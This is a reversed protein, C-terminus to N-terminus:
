GKASMELFRDIEEEGGTLSVFAEELTPEVPRVSRVRAGSNILLKVIEESIDGGRMCSVRLIPDEYTVKSVDDYAKIKDILGSQLNPTEVEIVSLESISRTLDSPRGIQILRGEYIIGVRDCIKEPEEMIHTTWVVTVGQDCLKRTFERLAIATQPDLGSTVEDLFLVKPNHILAAVIMSKKFWGSSLGKVQRTAKDNFKFLEFLERIRDEAKVKPLGYLKALLRLNEEVTLDKYLLVGDSVVGINRRVKAPETAVDYGAVKAQGRTPEILTCLMRVTTTKGAGNPGLLGFLEGAEVELNLNDVATFHGFVKTLGRTVIDLESM